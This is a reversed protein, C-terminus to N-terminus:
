GDGRIVVMIKLVVTGLCMRQDCVKTKLVFTGIRKRQDRGNDETRCNRVM